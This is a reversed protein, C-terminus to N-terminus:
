LGFAKKAEGVGDIPEGPASERVLSPGPATKEVYPACLADFAARGGLLKELEGLGRPKWTGIQGPEYGAASLALYLGDPNAIFRRSGRLVVKYGPIAGPTAYAARLAEEEVSSLWARIDRAVSVVAATQEPTLVDTDAGLGFDGMAVALAQDARPKCIGAAPCWRCANPSPHFPAADDHLATAAISAVKDKWSLLDAVSIEWANAGDEVRPQYICLTVTEANGMFGFTKLAGLGYLMLQPNRVPSVRVGSGYKLDIVEIRSAGVLVADSTGWCREIGTDMRQELLIACGGDKEFGAVRGEIFKLYGQAHAYMEDAAERGFRDAAEWVLLNTESPRNLLLSGVLQEAMSHALTGEAAYISDENQTPAKEGMRISAPCELWREAASPSLLAHESPM